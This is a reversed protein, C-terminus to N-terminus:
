RLVGIAGPLRPLVEGLDLGLWRGIAISDSSGENQTVSRGAPKFKPNLSNESTAAARLRFYCRHSRLRQTEVRTVERDDMARTAKHDSTVFIFGLASRNKIKAM